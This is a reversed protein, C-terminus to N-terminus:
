NKFCFAHARATRSGDTSSCLWGNGSQYSRADSWAADWDKWDCNGGIVIYGSPCTATISPPSESWGTTVIQFTGGSPWSSKSVGGLNITNFKSTGPLILMIDLITETM